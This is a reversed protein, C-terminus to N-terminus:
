AVSRLKPQGMEFLDEDTPRVAATARKTGKQSVRITRVWADILDILKNARDFREGSTSRLVSILEEELTRLAKIQQDADEHVALLDDIAKEAVVVPTAPDSASALTDMFLQPVPTRPDHIPEFPM